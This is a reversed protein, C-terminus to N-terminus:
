RMVSMCVNKTNYEGSKAKESYIDKRIICSDNLIVMQLSDVVMGCMVVM